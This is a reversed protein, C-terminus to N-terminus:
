PCGPSAALFTDKGDACLNTTVPFGLIMQAILTNLQSSHSRRRKHRDMPCARHHRWAAAASAASHFAAAAINGVPPQPDASGDSGSVSSLSTTYLIPNRHLFGGLLLPISIMLQSKGKNAIIETIHKAAKATIIRNIPPVSSTM